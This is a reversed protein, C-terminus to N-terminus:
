KEILYDAVALCFHERIMVSQESKYIFCNSYQLLFWIQITLMCLVALRPSQEIKCRFFKGTQRHYDHGVKMGASFKHYPQKFTVDYLRGDTIREICPTHYHYTDTVANMCFVTCVVSPAICIAIPHIVFIGAPAHSLFHSLSDGRHASHHFQFTCERLVKM